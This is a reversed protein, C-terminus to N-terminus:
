IYEELVNSLKAFDELKLSEGRVREDYGATNIIKTIDDKTLKFDGCNFMCNLLTKRRQSFAAKILRFMLKEDNV